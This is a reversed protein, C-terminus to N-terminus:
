GAPPRYSSFLIRIQKPQLFPQGSGGAKYILQFRFVPIQAPKDASGAPFLIGCVAPFHEDEIGIGGPLLSPQIEVPEPSVAVHGQGRGMVRLLHTGAPPLQQGSKRRCLFFTKQLLQLPQISTQGPEASTKFAGGGMPPANKIGFSCFPGACVREARRCSVVILIRNCKPSTNTLFHCSPVPPRSPM